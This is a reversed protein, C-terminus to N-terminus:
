TALTVPALETEVTLGREAARAAHPALAERVVEDIAIDERTAAVMGADPRALSMLSEVTRETQVCIALCDALASRYREPTRERDLALEITARLGAIPTRLEHAVEATLERERAFAAELRRLLNDLSDVIP